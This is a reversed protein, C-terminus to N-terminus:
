AVTRASHCYVNLNLFVGAFAGRIEETTKALAYLGRAHDVAHAADAVVGALLRFVHIVCCLELLKCSGCLELLEELEALYLEAVRLFLRGFRWFGREMSLPTEYVRTAYFRMDAVPRKADRPQNTHWRDFGLATSHKLAM